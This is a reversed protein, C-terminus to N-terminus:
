GAAGREVLRLWLPLLCCGAGEFGAAPFEIGFVEEAALSVPRRVAAQSSKVIGGGAAFHQSNFGKKKIQERQM